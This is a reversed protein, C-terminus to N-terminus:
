RAADGSRSSLEGPLEEWSDWHDALQGDVVRSVDLGAYRLTRGTGAETLTASLRTVIREGVAFQEEIDFRATSWSRHFAEFRRRLENGESPGSTSRARYGPALLIQLAPWDGSSWASLVQRVLANGAASESVPAAATSVLRWASGTWRWTDIYRIPTAGQSEPAMGTWHGTGTVIVLEPSDVHVHEPTGLMEIRNDADHRLRAALAMRGRALSGDPAELVTDESFRSLAHDIDGRSLARWWGHEADLVENRAQVASPAAKTSACGSVLGLLVGMSAM